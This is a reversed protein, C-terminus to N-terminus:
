FYGTVKIGFSRPQGARGYWSTGPADQVGRTFYQANFINHGWLKISVPGADYGAFVDAISYAGQSVQNAPDFYVKGFASWSFGAQFGSPHRWAAALRGTYRPSDIARRGSYNELPSPSYEKYEIATYGFGAELTLSDAPRAAIELELGRSVARGANDVHFGGTQPVMIEIQRNTWDIQFLALNATLRSDLWRMKAGIEYNVAFESKYPFGIDDIMNFGGERFGKSVAAYVMAQDSFRWSASVKPLWASFSKSDHGGAMRFGNYLMSYETNKRIYDYRLGASLELKGFFLYSVDGFVAAAKSDIDNKMDMVGGFLPADLSADMRLDESYAYIGLLWKLPSEENNSLLRIEESIIDTDQDIFLNVLYQPTFDVDNGSNMKEQSFSTVSLLSGFSLETRGRLSFGLQKNRSGGDFDSNIKDWARSNKRLPAFDAYGGSWFDNVDMTLDLRTDESVPSMLKLRFSKDEYRGTDDKGDFQNRFYGDSAEYAASVRFLLSDPVIPGSFSTEMKRTKFSSYEASVQGTFFNEPNKTVINIVGAEANRGYLTGQPGRLIEVRELDMLLMGLHPYYVDDIYIGLVPSGAMSSAIGRITGFNTSVGRPGTNTLYINPVAQFLKETSDIKFLSMTESSIVAASSPIDFLEAERKDATVLIPELVMGEGSPQVAPQASAYDPCFYAAMLILVSLRWVKKIM